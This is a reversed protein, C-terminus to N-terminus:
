ARAKLADVEAKLQKIAYMADMLIQETNMHMYQSLAPDDIVWDPEIAKAQQAIVGVKHVREDSGPLISADLQYTVYELAAFKALSDQVTPAINKKVRADSIPTCSWFSDTGGINALLQSGTNSRISTVNNGNQIFGSSSIGGLTNANSATTATASNGSCSAATTATTANGTIDM